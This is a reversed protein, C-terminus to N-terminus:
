NSAWVFPLKTVEARVDGVSLVTGPEVFDRHVYALAIPRKLAPSLCASTVEGADRDGARIGAGRDPVGAGADITM